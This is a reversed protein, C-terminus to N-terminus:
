FVIKDFYKDNLLDYPMVFYGGNSDIDLKYGLDQATKWYLYWIYQSCYFATNNTKDVISYDRYKANNINKLLQKKFSSDFYKYRIITKIDKNIQWLIADTEYYGDFLKPYEGVKYDSVMIASHGFWSLPELYNKYTIIIDGTQLKLLGKNIDGKINWNNYSYCGSLL